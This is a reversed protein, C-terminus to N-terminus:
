SIFLQSLSQGSCTYPFDDDVNWASVPSKTSGDTIFVWHALPTPLEYHVAAVTAIQLSKGMPAKNSQLQTQNALTISGGDAQVAGGSVTAENHHLSTDSVTVEGGAIRLAAGRDSRCRRVESESMHLTGGTVLIAGQGDLNSFTTRRMKM